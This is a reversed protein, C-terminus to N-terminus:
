PFNKEVFYKLLSRIGSTLYECKSSEEFMRKMEGRAKRRGKRSLAAYVQYGKVLVRNTEWFGRVNLYFLTKQAEAFDYVDLELGQAVITHYFRETDDHELETEYQNVLATLREMGSAGEIM